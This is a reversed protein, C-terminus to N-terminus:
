APFVQGGRVSISESPLPETAPGSVPSGDEISFASGHCVCNIQGDSVNDVPCGAHTCISSFGKFTGPEPQTVVLKADAVILGGGEPIDDTRALAQAGGGSRTTADGGGGTTGASSDSGGSPASTDDSCASVLPAAAGALLLGRLVTRRSAERPVPRPQRDARM